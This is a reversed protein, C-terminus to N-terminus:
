TVTSRVLFGLGVAELALIVLLFPALFEPIIDLMAVCVYAAFGNMVVFVGAFAMLGLTFPAQVQRYTRSYLGLLTGALGASALAAAAALVM